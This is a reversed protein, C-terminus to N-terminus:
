EYAGTPLSIRVPDDRGPGAYYEDLKRRLRRAEVRVTSHIRSDYSPERGYVANGIVAEKLSGPEDNLTEDVVFQLFVMLRVTRLITTRKLCWIELRILSTTFLQSASSTLRLTSSSIPLSKCYMRILPVNTPPATPNSSCVPMRKEPVRRDDLPLLPSSGHLDFVARELTLPPPGRKPALQRVATPLPTTTAAESLTRVPHLEAGDRFIKPEYKGDHISQTRAPKHAVTTTRTNSAFAPTSLSTGIGM